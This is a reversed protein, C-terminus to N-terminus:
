LAKYRAGWTQAQFFSVLEMGYSCLAKSSLGVLGFVNHRLATGKFEAM